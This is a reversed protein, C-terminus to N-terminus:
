REDPSRALRLVEEAIRLSTPGGALRAAVQACAERLDALASEDRLLADVRAALPEPAAEAQILEPIRCREGGLVINPLGIRDIRILRRALFLNLWNGRYVIVMPLGAFAAELTATGSCVIGFDAAAFLEFIEGRTTVIEIGAAQAARRITEADVGPALPVAFQWGPHTHALRAAAGFLAPVLHFIENSRSGPALVLTRRAPDLGFHRLAAERSSFRRALGELLPHGHFAVPVGAREYCPAEFPFAVIMKSVRGALKDIRGPRWAWFQPSIVFLVPIGLARAQTALMLNFDPLDICILIDPREHRLAHLLRRYSRIVPVLRGIVATFGVIALAHADGVARLGARRLNEGGIGFAQTHPALEQVRALIRAGYVDASAEGVVMMLKLARGAPLKPRSRTDPPSALGHFPELVRLVATTVAAGVVAGVTVDLPFHAGCAIRSFAVLGAPVLFLFRRRSRFGYILAAATAFAATSHGSPFSKRKFPPGIRKLTPAISSWRPNRITYEAVELGGPLSRVRVPQQSLAFEPDNVPRPRSVGHKIAVSTLAAVSLAFAMVLLNKPFRRRDFHRLGLWLLLLLLSGEGLWTGYGFGFDWAGGQVRNVLLFLERDLDLLTDLRMCARPLMDWRADM